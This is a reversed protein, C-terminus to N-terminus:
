LKHALILAIKRAKSKPIGADVMRCWIYLENTYHERLTKIRTITEKIKTILKMILEKAQQARAAEPKAVSPM